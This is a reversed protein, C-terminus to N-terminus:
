HRLKCKLHTVRGGQLVNCVYRMNEVIQFKQKSILM